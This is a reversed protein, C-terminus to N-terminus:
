SGGEYKWHPLKQPVDTLSGDGFTNVVRNSHSGHIYTMNPIMQIHKPKMFIRVAYAQITSDGWRNQLIQGSNNVSRLYHQVNQRLFFSVKGIHFNNYFNFCSKLPRDMLGVPNIQCDDVYNKVWVPLTQKTPGHAELKRVAYGYEVQNNAIWDFLNYKIDQFYCDTDCRMYYDYEKLYDYVDLAFFKCMYKYGYREKTTFGLSSTDIIKVNAVNEFTRQFSTVENSPIKYESFFIVDIKYSASFKKLILALNHNRLSLSPNAPKTLCIIAWRIPSNLAVESKLENVCVNANCYSFMMILCIIIFFIQM